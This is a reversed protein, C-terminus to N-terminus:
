MRGRGRRVCVQNVAANVARELGPLLSTTFADKLAATAATRVADAVDGPLDQTASAVSDDFAGPLAAAVAASVASGVAGAAASGVSSALSALQQETIAPSAAPQAPAAARGAGSSMGAGVADAVTRALQQPLMTTISAHLSQLPLLPACTFVFASAASGGVMRVQLLLMQEAILSADRAAADNALRDALSGLVSVVAHAAFDAEGGEGSGSSSGAPPAPLSGVASPTASAAEEAAAASAGCADSPLVPPGAAGADAAAVTPPGPWAGGTEGDEEEEDEVVGEEEGMMRRGEEEWTETPAEAQGAVELLAGAVPVDDIPPAEASQVPEELADDDVAVGPTQLLGADFEVRQPAADDSAVELAAVLDGAKIAFGELPAAPQQPSASPSSSSAAAAVAAAAASAAAAAASAASPSLLPMARPTLTPPAASAGREAEPAAPPFLAALPVVATEVGALTTASVEFSPALPPAHLLDGRGAAARLAATLHPGSCSATQIPSPTPWQARLLRPAPHSRPLAHM